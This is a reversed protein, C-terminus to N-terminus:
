EGGFLKRLATLPDSSTTQNQGQGTSATSTETANGASGMSSLNGEISYIQKEVVVLYGLAQDTDGERLAECAQGVFQKAMAVSRLLGDETGAAYTANTDSANTAPDMMATGNSDGAGTANSGSAATGTANLMALCLRERPTMVQPSTSQMQAQAATTGSGLLIATSAFSTIILVVVTGVLITKM